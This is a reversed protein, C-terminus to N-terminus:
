APRGAPLALAAARRRLPQAPPLLGALGARREQRDVPRAVRRRGPMSVTPYGAERARLGFEADDWKIFLPLSLGIEELPRRAPDPVHVLRQLRRRRAQAAVRPACTARRSTGTRAPRGPAPRGGSAGRRVIEGFSHLRVPLVPQVHPRRRDDAALWTASRSRASSARRSASSTTTWAGHLTRRPARSCRSWRAARTAAPGVSTAGARHGAAQRRPTRRTPSSEPSDPGERHGAGDGPGRRPVAPPRTPGRDPRAAQRLLGAPEHTTIAIDVTGHECPGDPM